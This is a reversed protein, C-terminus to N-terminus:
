NVGDHKFVPHDLDVSFITRYPMYPNKIPNIKGVYLVGFFLTILCTAFCIRMGTRYQTAINPLFVCIYIMFYYCLRTGIHGGLLFPFATGMLALRILRKNSENGKRLMALIYLILLVAIYVFPLITGGQLDTNTLYGEYYGIQEIIDALMVKGGIVLISLVMILRFSSSLFKYLFPFLLCVFASYHMLGALVCMLIYQLWKGQTLYRYSFLIVSLAMGQRVGSFIMGTFFALFTLLGLLVSDSSQLLTRFVFYCSITGVIMFFLPPFHFFDTIYFFCKGIPENHSLDGLTPYVSKYYNPYDWGVDFRFILVAYFFLFGIYLLVSPKKRGGIRYEALLVVLLFIFIIYFLM